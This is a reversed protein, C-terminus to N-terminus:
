IKRYIFYIIIPIGILFILDTDFPEPANKAEPLTPNYVYKKGSSTLLKEAQSKSIKGLYVQDYINM